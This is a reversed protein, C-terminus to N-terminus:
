LKYTTSHKMTILGLKEVLTTSAIDTYSGGDIILNYFKNYVHCRIDINIWTMKKLTLM